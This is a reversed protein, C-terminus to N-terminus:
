HLWPLWKNIRMRYAAAMGLHRLSASMGSTSVGLGVWEHSADTATVIFTMVTADLNYAWKASWANNDSVFVRTAAYGSQSRM